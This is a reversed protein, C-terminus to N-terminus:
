SGVPGGTHDKGRNGWGWRCLRWWRQARPLRQPQCTTDKYSMCAENRTHNNNRVLKSTMRTNIFKRIEELRRELQM